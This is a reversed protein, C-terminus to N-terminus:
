PQTDPSPQRAVVRAYAAAIRDGYADWSWASATAVAAESMAARRDEDEYLSLLARALADPDGAPVLLGERGDTIIDEAGTNPTVVVPLGSAMAELIVLALGEEVSPLVFVSAGRYADALAAQSLKGLQRFPTRSRALIGRLDPTSEGVLWLEVDPVRLRSVADLLHPTGKRIGLGTAIIRFPRGRTRAPSFNTLDVGYPVHLLRDRSVGHDLYSQLTFRSPVCIYDAEDYELLQRTVLRPDMPLGAVGWRRYEETLLARQTLVHTSGRDLITCAGRARVARGSILSFLSFGVFLDCGGVHRAAWRDFTVAKWYDFRDGGSGRTLRLARPGRLLLEPFPNFRVRERPIREGRMPPHTSILRHLLGRHELQEALRFAHFTGGASVTVKM